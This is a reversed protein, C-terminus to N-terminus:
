HWNGAIPKPYGADMTTETLRVYQDGKFMYIKNKTKHWFAADIGQTFDFPLGTWNGAIPQPYGADVTSGTIRVYQSGHFMYIKGNSERWLAADISKQYMDRTLGSWPPNPWPQANISVTKWSKVDDFIFSVKADPELTALWNLGEQIEAGIQTREAASMQLDATPGQVYIIGVAVENIFRKNLTTM